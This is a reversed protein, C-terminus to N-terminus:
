STAVAPQPRAAAKAVAERMPEVPPPRCRFSVVIAALLGPTV